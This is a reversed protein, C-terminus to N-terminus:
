VFQDGSYAPRNLQSVATRSTHVARWGCQDEFARAFGSDARAWPVEAVVVGHEPGNVRVAEAELFVKTAGLDLGRWRRRGCVSCRRRGRGMSRVSVVLADQQEDFDLDEIVVKEVGLLKRWIKNKSAV